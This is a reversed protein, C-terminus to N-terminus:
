CPVQRFFIKSVSVLKDTSYGNFEFKNGTLLVLPSIAVSLSYCNHLRKCMNAADFQLAAKQEPNLLIGHTSAASTSM